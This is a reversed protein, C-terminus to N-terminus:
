SSLAIEKPLSGPIERAESIRTTIGEPFPYRDLLIALELTSLTSRAFNCDLHEDKVAIKGEEGEQLRAFFTSPMSPAGSRGIEEPVAEESDSIDIERTNTM